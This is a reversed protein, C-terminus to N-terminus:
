WGISMVMQDCPAGNLSAWGFYIGPTVDTIADVCDINATPCGLEKSGRGFGPIVSGELHLPSPLAHIAYGEPSSPISSTSTALSSLLSM